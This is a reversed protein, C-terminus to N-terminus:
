PFSRRQFLVQLTYFPCHCSTLGSKKKITIQFPTSLPLWFIPPPSPSFTPSLHTLIHARETEELKYAAGLFPEVLNGNDCCFVYHGVTLRSIANKGKTAWDPGTWHRPPGLDNEVTSPFLHDTGLTHSLFSCTNAVALSPDTLHIDWNWRVLFGYTVKLLFM